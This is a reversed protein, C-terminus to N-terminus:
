TGVQKFQALTLIRRAITEAARPSARSVAAVSLQRLRIPDFILSRLTQDLREATLGTQPLLLAAGRAAMARANASQHDGAATPLPVLVGPIGWACLEALTLAGARTLALDAAAYADAIPSLYPRVRVRPSEHHRLREYESRGTGWIVFLGEPLSSELWRAVVENLSRAGQSGGFILLVPGNERGAPFGWGRRAEAADPRVAPPPEIPNGTEEMWTAQRTRLHGAAEAYGLYIEKAFRALGRTTLGPFSNQEQLVIPIRHALAYALPPGSAYGGTGVAVAPAEARVARAIAGWSAFLGAITAWNQWPRARYVPHLDLLLHEFGSQPLIEREIGRKAGIFFPRVAPDLQVIARAVALGPYLHGGSGGGAFLIRM